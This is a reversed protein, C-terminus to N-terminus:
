AFIKWVFNWCHFYLKLELPAQHHIFSRGMIFYHHSDRHHRCKRRLGSIWKWKKLRTTRGSFKIIFEVRKLSEQSLFDWVQRREWKLSFHFILWHIILKVLLMFNICSVGGLCLLLQWIILLAIAAVMKLSISTTM